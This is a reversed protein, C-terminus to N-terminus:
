VSVPVSLMPFLTEIVLMTLTSVDEGDAGDSVSEFAVPPRYVLPVLAQNLGLEAPPKSRPAAELSPSVPTAEYVNGDAAAIPADQLAEPPPAERVYLKTAPAASGPVFDTAAAFPAPELELELKVTLASEVAGVVVTWHL